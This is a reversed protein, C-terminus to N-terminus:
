FSIQEMNTVQYENGNSTWKPCHKLSGMRRRREEVEEEKEGGGGGAGGGLVPDYSRLAVCRVVAFSLTGEREVGVHVGGIM